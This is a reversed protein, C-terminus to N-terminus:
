AWRDPLGARAPALVKVRKDVREMEGSGPLVSSGAACAPVWVSSLALRTDVDVTRIASTITSHQQATATHDLSTIRVVESGGERIGVVRLM